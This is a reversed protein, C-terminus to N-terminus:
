WVIYPRLIGSAENLMSEAIEKQKDTFRHRYHKETYVSHDFVEKSMVSEGFHSDNARLTARSLSTVLDGKRTLSFRSEATELFSRADICTEDYFNVILRDGFENELDKLWGTNRRIWLPLNERIYAPSWKMYNRNKLKRLRYYSVLWSYPNKISLVVYMRRARLSERAREIEETSMKLYRPDLDAPQWSLAQQRDFPEHKNGLISQLVIVDRFNIELLGKVLNTGSRQLGYLKVYIM